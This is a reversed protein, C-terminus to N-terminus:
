IKQYRPDHNEFCTDPPLRENVIYDQPSARGCCKLWNEYQSMAGPNKLEDEWSADLTNSLNSAVDDAGKTLLFATAVQCLIVVIMLVIFTITCCVNERVAGITLFLLVVYISVGIGIYAYVAPAALENNEYTLLLYIGFSILVAALM